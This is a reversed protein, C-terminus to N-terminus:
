KLAIVPRFTGFPSSTEPFLSGRTSHSAWMAGRVSKEPSAVELIVGRDAKLFNNPVFYDDCWEWFGQEFDMLPQSSNESAMVAYEWEAETPLRVEYDALYSPLFGTLWKCFAKAAHWSMGIVPDINRSLSLYDETVLGMELLTRINEVGWEPNATLFDQWVSRTVANEAIRFSKIHVEHPFSGRQIFKGEPVVRFNLRGVQISDGLDPKPFIRQSVDGQQRKYWASNIILSSAETPLIESLWLASSESESLYALIDELSRMLTVPSPSLGGSDVFHKARILDRLGARSSAFRASARLIKELRENSDNAEDTTNFFVLTSRYAGESLSRPIQYIVSPEGTFSWLAYERAGWLFAAGVEQETLRVKPVTQTMFFRRRVNLDNKYPTFGPLVMEVTRSGHPIFATFPTTGMYVDDIRVAAGLPESSFSLVAGPNAIRPFLFIFFLILFLIFSYLAILYVGPRVGFLPKLNVVDEPLTEPKKRRFM